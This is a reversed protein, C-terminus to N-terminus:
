QFFIINIKHIIKIMLILEFPIALVRNAIATRRSNVNMMDSAVPMQANETVSLELALCRSWQFSLSSPYIGCAILATQWHIKTRSNDGNKAVYKPSIFDIVICLPTSRSVNLVLEVTVLVVVTLALLVLDFLVLWVLTQNKVGSMTLPTM